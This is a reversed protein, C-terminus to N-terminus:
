TTSLSRLHQESAAHVHTYGCPSHEVSGIAWHLHDGAKDDQDVRGGKEEARDGNGGECLLEPKEEQFTAITQRGRPLENEDDELAEEDEAYGKECDAQGYVEKESKRRVKM